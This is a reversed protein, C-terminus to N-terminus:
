CPILFITFSSLFVNEFYPFFFQLSSCGLPWKQLKQKSFISLKSIMATGQCFPAQFTSSSATICFNAQSSSTRSHLNAFEQWHVELSVTSKMSFLAKFHFHLLYSRKIKEILKNSPVTNRRTFHQTVLCAVKKGEIPHILIKEPIASSILLKCRTM